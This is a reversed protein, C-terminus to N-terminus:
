DVLKAAIQLLSFSLSLCRLKGAKERKNRRDHFRQLIITIQAM